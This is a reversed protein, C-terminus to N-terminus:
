PQLQLCNLPKQTGTRLTAGDGKMWFEIDESAYRVGSASRVQPLRQPDRSDLRLEIAQDDQLVAVSQEGCRYNLLAPNDDREVRYSLATPLPRKEGPSSMAMAERILQLRRESSPHTQTFELWNLNDQETVLRSFFEDAGALHGYHYQLIELARKDAALEMDRNFSLATLVTGSSLLANGDVGLLATLLIQLLVGRGASEIPHRLQVHAIEHAMVMALGNESQLNQLLGDTVAIQAGLTAFANPDSNEILHFRFYEAPVPAESESNSTALAQSSALLALGLTQVAGEAEGKNSAGMDTVQAVTELSPSVALEWDFPVLPALWRAALSFCVVLFVLVGGVGLLLLLFEKLPHTQTANIGEPIRPNQNPLM